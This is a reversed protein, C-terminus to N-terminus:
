ANRSVEIYRGGGFEDGIRGYGPAYSSSSQCSNSEHENEEGFTDLIWRAASLMVDPPATVMWEGNEEVSCKGDKMVSLGLYPSPESSRKRRDNYCDTCAFHGSKPNFTGENDVVYQDPTVDEEKAAEVYEPIDSPSRECYPDIPRM